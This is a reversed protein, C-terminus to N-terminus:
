GQVEVSVKTGHNVASKVVIKSNLLLAWNEMNILGIQGLNAFSMLKDPVEFGKGNDTIILKVKHPSFVLNMDIQTAESHKEANKLAEEAILYVAAEVDAALDREQGITDFDVHIHQETNADDVLAELARVLGLYDLIGPKFKHSICRIENIVGSIKAQLETMRLLFLEPNLSKSIISSEVFLNLAALSQLIGEHLERAILDHESNRLNTVNTIYSQLNDRLEKSETIDAAVILRLESSGAYSFPLWAVEFWKRKGDRSTFAVERKKRLRNLNPKTERLATRRTRRTWWPYPAPKEIIKESSYGTQEEFAANVYKVSTNADIVMVIFPISELLDLFFKKNNV